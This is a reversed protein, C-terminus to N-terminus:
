KTEESSTKNVYIVEEDAQQSYTMKTHSLNPKADLLQGVIKKAEEEKNLVTATNKQKASTVDFAIEMIKAINGSKDLMPTYSGKIWLVEGKKNIRRFEGKREIGRSLDKWFSAYENTKSQEPEMFLQHHQGKIESLKYGMLDTFNRNANIIVGSPEFEVVAFSSDIAKIVNENDLQRRSIEEQTAELEEMSQRMVEEQALMQEAQQQTKELLLTTGENARVSSVTSAISESLKEILDIEFGQYSRFSALELVGYIKGDVKLPVLLLASPTAEGLGSTVSIYEKPVEHLVIKEGEVFCQGVLGQGVDVRKDIFKKREYAYCALMELYQDDENEHNLIFLGGQNSDTYKVVFRIINDYLKTSDTSARL